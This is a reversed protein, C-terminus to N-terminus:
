LAARWLRELEVRKKQGEDNCYQIVRADFANRLDWWINGYVYPLTYKEVKQLMINFAITGRIRESCYEAKAAEEWALAYEDKYSKDLVVTGNNFEVQNCVGLGHEGCWRNWAPHTVPSRCAGIKGPEHEIELKGIVDADADLYLMPAVGFLETAEMRISNYFWRGAANADFERINEFEGLVPLDRRIRGAFILFLRSEPANKKVYRVWRVLHKDVWDETCITVLNM